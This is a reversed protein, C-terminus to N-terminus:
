ISSETHGSIILVFVYPCQKVTFLRIQILVSLKFLLFRIQLILDSLKQVIICTLVDASIEDAILRNKMMAIDQELREYPMYEDYYAAGFLLVMALVLSCIKRM